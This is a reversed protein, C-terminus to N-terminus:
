FPFSPFLFLSILFILFAIILGFALFRWFVGWWSGSILDRSRLIASIGRREEFILAYIALSFWVSFLVGPIIFLLFGGLTIIGGLFYVWISSTLIKFGKKYSDKLNLDEKLALLLALITWFWIFLLILWLIILIIFFSFSYQFAQPQSQFTPLQSVWLFTFSGLVVGLGFPIILIGL